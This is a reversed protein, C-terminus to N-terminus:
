VGVFVAPKIVKITEGLSLYSEKLVKAYSGCRGVIIEKLRPDISDLVYCPKRIKTIEIILGGSFELVTGLPLNNVDLNRVTLNEGTRGPSLMFGERSIEELKEIDQLCVAQLPTRHKEHNHGDGNLGAMSVYVSPISLKPIGGMSINISIVQAKSSELM